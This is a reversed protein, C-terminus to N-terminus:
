QLQETNQSYYYKDLTYLFDQKWWVGAPVDTKCQNYLKRFTPGNVSNDQLQGLIFAIQWHSFHHCTNGTYDHAALRLTMQILRSAAVWRKEAIARTLARYEIKAYKRAHHLGAMNYKLYELRKEKQAETM